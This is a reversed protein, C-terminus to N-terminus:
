DDTPSVGTPGSGAIDSPQTVTKYLLVVIALISIVGLHAHAGVMWGPVGHGGSLLIFQYLGITMMTALGLFGSAKLPKTM